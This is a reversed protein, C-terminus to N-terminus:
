VEPTPPDAKARYEVQGMGDQERDRDTHELKNRYDARESGGRDHAKDGHLLIADPRCGEEEGEGNPQAQRDVIDDTRQNETLRRPDVRDYHDNGKDAPRDKKADDSQQQGDGVATHIFM